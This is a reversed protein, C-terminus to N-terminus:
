EQPHSMMSSIFAQVRRDPARAPVIAFNQYVTAALKRFEPDRLEIVVRELSESRRQLVVRRLTLIAIPVTVVVSASSIIGAVQYIVTLTDM